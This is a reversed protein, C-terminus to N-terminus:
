THLSVFISESHSAFADLHIAPISLAFRDDRMAMREHRGNEKSIYNLRDFVISKYRTGVGDDDANFQM